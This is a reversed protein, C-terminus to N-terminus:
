PTAAGFVSDLHVKNSNISLSSCIPVSYSANHMVVAGNYFSTLTLPERIDRFLRDVLELKQCYNAGSFTVLTDSARKGYGALAGRLYARRHEDTNIIDKKLHWVSEM